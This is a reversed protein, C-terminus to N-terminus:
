VDSSARPVHKQDISMHSNYFYEYMHKTLAINNMFYYVRYETRKVAVFNLHYKQMKINHYHM